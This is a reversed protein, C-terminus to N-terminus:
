LYIFKPIQLIEINWSKLKKDETHTIQYIKNNVSPAYYFKINNKATQKTIRQNQLKSGLEIGRCNTEGIKLVFETDNHPWLAFLPM